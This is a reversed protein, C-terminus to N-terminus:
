SGGGISESTEGSLVYEVGNKVIRSITFTVTGSGRIYGSSFIVKGGSNTTGSVTRSYAGSWTGYVRAGSIASGSADNETITITATVRWWRGIAQKSLVIDVWATPAAPKEAITVSATDSDTLGGNDTVTLTVTYSDADSYVHSVTIGSGSAGDGFDWKYSVISGDPDSSGSGDFTVTDGVYASRDPGADAVPAQNAVVNITCEDSASAGKDDTVMLTVTHTGV